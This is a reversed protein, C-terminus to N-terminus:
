PKGTIWAVVPSGDSNHPYGLVVAGGDHMGVPGEVYRDVLKGKVSKWDRGDDSVWIKAISGRESSRRTIGSMIATGDAAAAYRVATEAAPTPAFVFPRGDARAPRWKVGDPSFLTFGGM